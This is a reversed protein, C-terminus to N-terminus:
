GTRAEGAITQAVRERIVRERNPVQPLTRRAALWGLFDAGNIRNWADVHLRPLDRAQRITRAPLGSLQALQNPTYHRRPDLGDLQDNANDVKRVNRVRKFPSLTKTATTNRPVRDLSASNNQLKM